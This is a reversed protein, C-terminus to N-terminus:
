GTSGKQIMALGCQLGDIYQCARIRENSLNVHSNIIFSLLSAYIVVGVVMWLQYTRNGASSKLSRM